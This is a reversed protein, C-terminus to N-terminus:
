CYLRISRGGSYRWICLRIPSIFHPRPRYVYLNKEDFLIRVRTLGQAEALYNPFTQRFGETVYAVQWDQEDLKGDLAIPSARRSAQHAPLSTTQAPM